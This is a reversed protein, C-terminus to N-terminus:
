EARLAELPDARTARAAPVLCALASVALHLAVIIVFVRPDTPGIGYLSSRLLRTLGLASVIGGGLGITPFTLGERLVLRMVSEPRAGGAGALVLVERGYQKV